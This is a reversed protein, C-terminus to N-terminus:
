AYACQANQKSVIVFSNWWEAMVDAGLPALIKQEQLKELDNEQLVFTHVM